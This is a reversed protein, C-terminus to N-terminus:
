AARATPRGMRAVIDGMAVGGGQLNTSVGAARPGPELRSNMWEATIWVKTGPALTEPFTININTRGFNGCYQWDGPWPTEDSVCYFVTAGVAERPRGRSSVANQLQLSVTHNRVGMVVVLPAEELPAARQAQQRVTLGLGIKDAATVTAQGDIVRALLRADTKLTTRAQNKESTSIITRRAPDGIVEMAAAFADHLAAYREARELPIGMSGGSALIKDRFVRSWSLLEGDGNPLFGKPM